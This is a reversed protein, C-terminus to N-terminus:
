QKGTEARFLRPYIPLYKRVMREVKKKGAVPPLNEYQLAAIQSYSKGITWLTAVRVVDVPASIHENALNNTEYASNFFYDGLRIAREITDEQIIEEQEFTEHNYAKDSIHLIAAIRMTYASIKGYIGGQLNREEVSDFSNIRNIKATRWVDFTRIARPSLICKRIDDLENVWLAKYMTNISRSHLDQLQQPMDFDLSPLAIRHEDPVAFLFRFIFGTTARENKFLKHLVTPQISGFNNIFMNKIFTEQKASRTIQHSKGDWCKLWFQEENGESKNNPNMGQIWELIEESFKIMGKKNDPLVSRVLTSIQIDNFILKKLPYAKREEEKLQEGNAEWDASFDEQIKELPSFIQSMALSKGSSSIGVIAGWIALPMSGLKKNTLYYGNGIATSYATLMSLGIFSRPVDYHDHILEIFPKIHPHFVDLPFPNATKERLKIEELMEDVSQTPLGAKKREKFDRYSNDSM